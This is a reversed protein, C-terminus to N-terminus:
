HLVHVGRQTGDGGIVYLQNIGRALLAKIMQDADFGGRSSGLVSGGLFQMNKIYKLDLLQWYKSYLGQFGFHVGWVEPCGYHINL